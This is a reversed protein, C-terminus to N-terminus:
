KNRTIEIQAKIPVGPALDLHAFLRDGVAPCIRVHSMNTAYHRGSLEFLPNTATTYDSPTDCDGLEKVIYITHKM